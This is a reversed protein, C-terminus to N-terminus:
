LASKGIKAEFIGFVPDKQRFVRQCMGSIYTSTRKYTCIENKFNTQDYREEQKHLFVEQALLYRFCTKAMIERNRPAISNRIASKSDVCFTVGIHVNKTFFIM